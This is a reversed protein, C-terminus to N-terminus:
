WRRSYKLHEAFRGRKSLGGDAREWAPTVVPSTEACGAAGRM